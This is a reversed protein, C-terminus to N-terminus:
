ETDFQVVAWARLRGLLLVAKSVAGSDCYPIDLAFFLVPALAVGAPIHCVGVAIFTAIVSWRM